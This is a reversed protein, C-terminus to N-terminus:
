RPVTSACVLSYSVDQEKLIELLCWSDNLKWEVHNAYGTARAEYPYESSETGRRLTSVLGGTEVGDV